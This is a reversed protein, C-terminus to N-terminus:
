GDADHVPEVFLRQDADPDSVALRGQDIGWQMVAELRQRLAATLRRRGFAEATTRIMEEEYVSHAITVLDVMANVVEEPAIQELDRGAAADSRRYGRWQAPQAADRWVFRGFGHDTITLSTFFRNIITSRRAERLRDLNFRRVLVSALRDEHIPSEIVLIEEIASRVLGVDEAAGSELVSTEGLVSMEDAAVYSEAIESHALVSDDTSESGADRPTDPGDDVRADVAPPALGDSAPGMPGHRDLPGSRVPGAATSEDAGRDDDGVDGSGAQDGNGAVPAPSEPAVLDDSDREANDLQAELRALVGDTDAELEDMTVVMANVVGCKALVEASPLDGVYPVAQRFLDAGTIRVATAWGRHGPRRVAMDIAMTFLRSDDRVEYGATALTEAFAIRARERRVEALVSTVVHDPELVV